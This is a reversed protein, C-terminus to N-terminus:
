TAEEMYDFITQQNTAESPKKKCILFCNAATCKQWDDWCLATKGDKFSCMLQGDKIYGQHKCSSQLVYFAISSM